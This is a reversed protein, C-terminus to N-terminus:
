RRIESLKQFKHKNKWLFIRRLRAARDAMAKAVATFMQKLM